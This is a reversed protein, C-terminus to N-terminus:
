KPLNPNPLPKGKAMEEVTLYNGPMFHKDGGEFAPYGESNAVDNPTIVGNNLLTRLNNIRTTSDTEILYNTDFEISKGEIREQTTLLKYEFEQEYIKVINAMTQSLFDLNMQEVNSYRIQSNIGLMHEPIGYLAGIQAANFKITEIFLADAFSLSTSILDTNPPLPKVKGAELPGSYKNNFEDIAELLAKQNAGSVTSKIFKSTTANNKYFEDITKMGQWTSSINLRVAEIPNMGWIGDKTLNRFHLIQMSDLKAIKGNYDVSYFLSGNEVGYSIVQAPNLLELSKVQGTRNDRYIRAFSNGRLNRWYELSAIFTQSSTYNNPNYHIIPYRYDMKDIEAGTLGASYLDLPMRSLTDALKKICIYVTSVAEANNINFAPNGRFIQPIMVDTYYENTGLWMSKLNQVFSSLPM